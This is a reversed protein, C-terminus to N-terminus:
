KRSKRTKKKSKKSKKTSKKSKKTSKRKGGVSVPLKVDEINLDTETGYHSDVAYIKVLKKSIPKEDTYEYVYIFKHGNEDIVEEIIKPTSEAM